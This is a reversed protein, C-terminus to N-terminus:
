RGVSGSQRVSTIHICQAARDPAGDRADVAARLHGAIGQECAVDVDAPEEVASGDQGQRGVGQDLRDVRGVGERHGADHGDQGRGVQGDDRGARVPEVLRERAVSIRHPPWGTASTTASVGSAAASAASSTM